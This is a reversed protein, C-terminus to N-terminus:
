EIFLLPPLLFNNIVLALAALHLLLHEAGEWCRRLGSNQPLFRKYSRVCSLRCLHSWLTCIKCSIFCPWHIQGSLQLTCQLKVPSLLHLLLPHAHVGWGWWGQRIKGEHSFTRWFASKVVRVRHSPCKAICVTSYVRTLDSVEQLDKSPCMRLPPNEPCRFQIINASKTPVASPPCYIEGRSFVAGGAARWFM